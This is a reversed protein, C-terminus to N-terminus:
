VMGGRGVAVQEPQPAVKAGGTSGDRAPPLAVVQRAQAAAAMSASCAASREAYVAMLVVPVM